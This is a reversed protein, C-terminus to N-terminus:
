FNGLYELFDVNGVPFRKDGNVVDIILDSIEEPPIDSTDIENVKDNYIEFAEYLCLDIAEAEINERIKDKKWGKTQEPTYLSGAGLVGLASKSIPAAESLILGASARQSYYEVHFDNPIGTSPDAKLTSISSMAIKNPLILDGLKVPRLLTQALKISM